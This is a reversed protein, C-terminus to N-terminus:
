RISSGVLAVAAIAMIFAALWGLLLLWPPLRFAKRGARRSVLLMMALMIPVAVLGNVVAAWFLMAVADTSTAALVAGVLTAGAIIGYFGRARHAPLELSGRLGAVDAVAYAASGALVPVALLGTGVIGAAFLAFTLEGAVPRLAQAAQAATEIHMAGHTHLTAATTAIICFAIANSFAMGVWTDLSIRRFRRAASDGMRGLRAEEAEQSAQWFFLYPSITTGFVAVITLMLDRDLTLRPVFTTVAVRGWPIHLTFAAAVYVLLALTLLKLYGSYRHYPIAIEALACALGFATAYAPAYGGAVLRVAAGMAALDAAINLTNALVLLLVLGYVLPRPFQRAISLALGARTRAGICASIIQIAAM